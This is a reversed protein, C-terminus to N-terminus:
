ASSNWRAGPKPEAGKKKSRWPGIQLFQRRPKTNPKRDVEGVVIKYRPFFAASLIQFTVVIFTSNRARLEILDIDYIFNVGRSKVTGFLNYPLRDDKESIFDALFPRFNGYGLEAVAYAHSVKSIFRAVQHFKLSPFSFPETVQTQEPWALHIYSVQPNIPDDFWNGSQLFKPGFFRLYAAGLPGEGVAMDRRVQSDGDGWFTPVMVQGSKKANESFKTGAYVRAARYTGHDGFLQQENISGTLRRCAECSSDPLELDGGVCEPIIHELTLKQDTAGCYICRGVSRYIV